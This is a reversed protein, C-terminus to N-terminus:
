YKNIIEKLFEIGNEGSKEPHFQIGLVNKKYIITPVKLIIMISTLFLIKKIKLNSM